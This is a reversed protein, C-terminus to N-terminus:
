PYVTTSSASYGLLMDGIKDQGISGMWRWTTTDPSFTSQQFVVPGGKNGKAIANPDRIEYWRIGSQSGSGAGSDIQVSHSVLLSEYTGFNRYSLRYMLRSGGFDELKDSTGPQ